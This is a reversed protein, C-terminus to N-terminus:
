LCWRFWPVRDTNVEYNSQGLGMAIVCNHVDNVTYGFVRVENRHMGGNCGFASGTQVKPLDPFVM